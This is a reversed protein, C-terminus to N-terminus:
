RRPGYDSMVPKKGKSKATPAVYDFRNDTLAIYLGVCLGKISISEGGDNCFIVFQYKMIESTTKGHLSPFASSSFSTSSSPAFVAWQTLTDSNPEILGLKFNGVAVSSGQVITLESTGFLEARSLIEGSPLNELQLALYQNGAQSVLASTDTDFDIANKFDTVNNYYGAKRPVAFMELYLNGQGFSYVSHGGIETVDINDSSGFAIQVRVKAAQYMKGDHYQPQQTQKISHGAILYIKSYLDTCITPFGPEFGFESAHLTRTLLDGYVIPLPLGLSEDPANPYDEKTILTKPLDIEYREQYDMVDLLIEELSADVHDIRGHYLVMNEFVGNVDYAGIHIDVQRNVWVDSSFPHIYKHVFNPDAFNNLRIKLAGIYDVNGGELIDIGTEIDGLGGEIVFGGEFNPENIQRNSWWLKSGSAPYIQLYWSIPEENNLARKLNGFAPLTIM